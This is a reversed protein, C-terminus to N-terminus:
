SVKMQVHSTNYLYLRAHNSSTDHLIYNSFTCVFPADDCALCTKRGGYISYNTSTSEYLNRSLMRSMSFTIVMSTWMSTVTISIKTCLHLINRGM